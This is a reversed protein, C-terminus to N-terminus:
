RAPNTQDYFGREVGRGSVGGVARGRDESGGKRQGMVSLQFRGGAELAQIDVGDLIDVRPGIPIPVREARDVFAAEGLIERQRIAIARKM